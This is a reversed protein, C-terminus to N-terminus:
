SLALGLASVAFVRTRGVRSGWKAWVGSTLASLIGMIVLLGTQVKAAAAQVAPDQFCYQPVGGVPRQITITDHLAHLLTSNSSSSLPDLSPFISHEVKAACTLQILAQVRAAITLGRQRVCVLVQYAPLLPSRTRLGSYEGITGNHSRFSHAMSASTQLPVVATPPQPQPLSGSTSAPRARLLALTGYGNIIFSLSLSLVHCLRLIPRYYRPISTLLSRLEEPFFLLARV